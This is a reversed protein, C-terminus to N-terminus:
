FTSDASCDSLQTSDSSCDGFLQWVLGQQDLSVLNCVTGLLLAVGQQDLSVLYCYTGLLLSDIGQQDLSVLNCNTGLWLSDISQHDLSVLYCHTVLLVILSCPQAISFIAFSRDSTVKGLTTKGTKSSLTYCSRTQIIDFWLVLFTFNINYESGAVCCQKMFVGLLRLSYILM